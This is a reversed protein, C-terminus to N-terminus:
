RGEWTWLQLRRGVTDLIHHWSCCDSTASLVCSSDHRDYATCYKHVGARWHRCNAAANASSACGIVVLPPCYSWSYVPSVRATPCPGACLRHPPRPSQVAPPEASPFAACTHVDTVHTRTITSLSQSTPPCHTHRHSSLQVEGIYPDLTLGINRRKTTDNGM